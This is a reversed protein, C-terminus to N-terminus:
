YDLFEQTDVVDTEPEEESSEYEEEDDYGDEEQQMNMMEYEIEEENLTEIGYLVGKFDSFFQIRDDRGEDFHFNNVDYCVLNFVLADETSEKVFTLELVYDNEREEPTKGEMFRMKGRRIKTMWLGKLQMLSIKEVTEIFFYLYKDIDLELKCDFVNKSIEISHLGDANKVYQKLKAICTCDVCAKIVERLTNVKIEDTVDDFKILM